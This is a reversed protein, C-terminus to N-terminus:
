NQVVCKEIVEKAQEQTIIDLIVEEKIPINKIDFYITDIYGFPENKNPILTKPLWKLKDLEINGNLRDDAIFRNYYGRWIKKLM